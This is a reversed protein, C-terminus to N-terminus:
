IEQHSSMGRGSKKEGGCSLAHLAEALFRSIQRPSYNLEEGIKEITLGQVYKLYLTRRHRADSVGGIVDDLQARIRSLASLKDCLRGELAMLERIVNENQSLSVAAKIRKRWVECENELAETEFVLARYESLRAKASGADKCKVMENQTM